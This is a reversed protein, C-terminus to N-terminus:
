PRISSIPSVAGSARGEFESAVAAPSVRRWARPPGAPREKACPRRDVREFSRGGGQPCEQRASGPRAARPFMANSASSSTRAACAFSHRQAPAGGHVCAFRASNFAGVGGGLAEFASEAPRGPPQSFVASRCPRVFFDGMRSLPMARLIQELDGAPCASYNSTLRAFRARALRAGGAAAAAGEFIEEFQARAAEDFWARLMTMIRAAGSDGSSVRADRLAARFSRLSAREAVM